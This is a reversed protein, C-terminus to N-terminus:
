SFKTCVKGVPPKIDPEKRRRARPILPPPPQPLPPAPQAEVVTQGAQLIQTLVEAKTPDENQPEQLQQLQKYM